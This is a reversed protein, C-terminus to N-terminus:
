GMQVRGHFNIEDPQETDTEKRSSTPHAPVNSTISVEKELWFIFIPVKDGQVQLWLFKEWVVYALQLQFAFMAM